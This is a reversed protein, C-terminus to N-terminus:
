KKYQNSAHGYRSIREMSTIRAILTGFGYIPLSIVWSVIPGLVLLLVGKLIEGNFFCVITVSISVLSGLCLFVLALTKLKEGPEFFLQEM